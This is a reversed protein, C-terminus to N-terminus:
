LFSPSPQSVPASGQLTAHRVLCADLRALGEADTLAVNSALASPTCPGPTVCAGNSCTKSQALCDYSESACEKTGTNVYYEKLLNKCNFIKKDLIPYYSVSHARLDCTVTGDESSSNLMWYQSYGNVVPAVLAACCKWASAAGEWVCSDTGGSNCATCTGQTIYTKGSDTDSPLQCVTLCNDYTTATVQSQNDIANGKMCLSTGATLTDSTYICSGAKSSFPCDKVVDWTEGSGKLIQIHNLEHDDNASVTYTLTDGAYVTSPTLTGDQPSIVPPNDRTSYISFNMPYSVSMGETSATLTATKGVCGAPLEPLTWYGNIYRPDNSICPMTGITFEKNISCNDGSINYTLSSNCYTCSTGRYLVFM